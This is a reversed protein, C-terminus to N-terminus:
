DSGMFTSSSFSPLSILSLSSLPQNSLPGTLSPNIGDSKRLQPRSFVSLNLFVIRVHKLM